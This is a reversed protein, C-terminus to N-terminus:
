RSSIAKRTRWRGCRRCLRSSSRACTVSRAACNSSPTRIRSVDLLDDNCWPETATGDDRYSARGGAFAAAVAETDRALEEAARASQATRAGVGGPIEDKRRDSQRLQDLLREREQQARRLQTLDLAIRVHFNSGPDLLAAAGLFSTREGDPKLFAKEYGIVSGEKILKETTRRYTEVFEPAIAAKWNVRGAEFDERRQGMMRLM